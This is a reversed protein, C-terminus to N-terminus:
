GVKPRIRSSSLPAAQVRGPLSAKLASGLADGVHLQLSRYRRPLWVTYTYVRATAASRECNVHTTPISTLLTACCRKQEFSALARWRVRGPKHGTHPCPNHQSPRKAVKTALVFTTAVRPLSRSSPLEEACFRLEFRVLWPKM